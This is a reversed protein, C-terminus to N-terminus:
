NDSANATISDALNDTASRILSYLYLSEYEGFKAYNKRVEDQHTDLYDFIIQINDKAPTTKIHELVFCPIRKIGHKERFYAHLELVDLSTLM